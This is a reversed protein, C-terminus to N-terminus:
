ISNSLDRDMKEAMKKQNTKIAIHELEVIKEEAIDWRNNIRIFTNKDWVNENKDTSTQTMKINWMDRNIYGM